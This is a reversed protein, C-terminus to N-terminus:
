SHQASGHTMGRFWARIMDIFRGRSQRGESVPVPLPLEVPAPAASDAPRVAATRAAKMVAPGVNALFAREHARSLTDIAQKLPLWKVAKVDAMLRRAPAASASMRWFQVIKHKNDAVHSMSGLFEHVTVDHGTEERAERAAAALAQEGPKLKGKPLVWSRDKRLRVVAILPRPGERVVIGGAAFVTGKDFDKM